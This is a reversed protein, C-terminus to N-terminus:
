LFAACLVKTQFFSCIFHQRIQSRHDIEDVNFACIKRVFTKERSLTQSQVFKQVFFALTFCQDFQCRDEKRRLLGINKPNNCNIDEINSFSACRREPSEEEASNNGSTAPNTSGASKDKSDSLTVEKDPSFRISVSEKNRSTKKNKSKCIESELLVCSEILETLFTFFFM